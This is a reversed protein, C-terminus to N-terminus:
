KIRWKKSRFANRVGLWTENPHTLWILRFARGDHWLPETKFYEFGNLDTADPLFTLGSLKGVLERILDDSMASKHRIEYHPDVVIENVKRGNVILNAPYSRRM